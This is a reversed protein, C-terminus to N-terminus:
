RSWRSSRGASSSKQRCFPRLNAGTEDGTWVKEGLLWGDLRDIRRDFLRGAGLHLLRAPDAGHRCNGVRVSYQDSRESRQLDVRVEHHENRNQGFWGKESKRVAVSVWTKM